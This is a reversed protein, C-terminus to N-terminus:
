KWGRAQLCTRCRRIGRKLDSPYVNDGSLPHGKHCHTKRKNIASPSDGRANNEAQTTDELHRPNVCRINRCLHDTSKAWYGNALFFAVRHATTVYGRYRVRGYGHNFYCGTWEICDDTPKKILRALKSNIVPGKSM